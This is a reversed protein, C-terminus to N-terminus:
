FKSPPKIGKKDKILSLRQLFIGLYGWMAIIFGGFLVALSLVYTLLHLHSITFLMAAGAVFVTLGIKFQRWSKHVNQNFM